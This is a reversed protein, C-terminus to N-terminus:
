SYGVPGPRATHIGLDWLVAGLPKVFFASFYFSVLNCATQLCSHLRIPVQGEVDMRKALIKRAKIGTIPFIFGKYSAASNECILLDM